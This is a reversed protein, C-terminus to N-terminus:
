GQACGSTASEVARTLRELGMQFTDGISRNQHVNSQVRMESCGDLFGGLTGLLLSSAQAHAKTVVLMSECILCRTEM